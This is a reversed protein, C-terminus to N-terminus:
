PDLRELVPLGREDEAFGASRGRCKGPRTQALVAAGLPQWIYRSQSHRGVAGATPERWRLPGIPPAAFPIGKFARVGSKLTVGSISGSSIRVPDPIAAQIAPLSLVALAAGTALVSRFKM